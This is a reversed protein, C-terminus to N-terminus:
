IVRGHTESVREVHQFATGPMAGGRRAFARCSAPFTMPEARAGLWEMTSACSRGDAALEQEAVRRGDRRLVPGKGGRSGVDKIVGEWMAEAIDRGVAADGAVEALALSAGIPGGFVGGGVLKAVPSIEDGTLARYLGSVLPLHQLPNIIDVLEHLARTFFAKFGGRSRSGEGDIAPAHHAPAPRQAQEILNMM